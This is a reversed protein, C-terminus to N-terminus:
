NRLTASCKERDSNKANKPCGSEEHDNFVVVLLVCGSLFAMKSSSVRVIDTRGPTFIGRLVLRLTYLWYLSHGWPKGLKSCADNQAKNARNEFVLLYSGHAEM